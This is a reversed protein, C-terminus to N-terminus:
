KYFKLFGSRKLGRVLQKDNTWLWADLELALAVFPTDKQDVNRCLRYAEAWSGISILSEEYLKTQEIVRSLTELVEDESLNTTRQIRPSHKFLEVVVFKPSAVIINPDSLRTPVYPSSSIIATILINTDVVVIEAM